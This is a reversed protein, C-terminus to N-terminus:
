RVLIMRKVAVQGGASLRYFYVGSALKRADFTVRHEGPTQYGDVLVAVERGLLDYVALKVHGMGDTKERSGVGYERSGAIQYLITTVPNFPNPYNQELRYQAPVEVPGPEVSTVM